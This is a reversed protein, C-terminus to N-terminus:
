VFLVMPQRGIYSEVIRLIQRHCTSVALCHIMAIQLSICTHPLSAVFCGLEDRSAKGEFVRCSEVFNEGYDTSLWKEPLSDSNVRRDILM